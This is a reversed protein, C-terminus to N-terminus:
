WDARKLADVNAGQDLLYKTVELNESAAAEHLATKGDNNTSELPIWSLLDALMGLQGHRAAAHLATDGMRYTQLGLLLRRDTSLKALIQGFRETNGQAIAAFLADREHSSCSNPM